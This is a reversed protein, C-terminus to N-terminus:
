RYIFGESLIGIRLKSSLALSLSLLFLSNFHRNATVLIDLGFQLSSTSQAHTSHLFTQIIDTDSSM